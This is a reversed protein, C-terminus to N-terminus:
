QKTMTTGHFAIPHVVTCGATHRFCALPQGDNIYMQSTLNSYITFELTHRTVGKHHVGKVQIVNEIPSSFRVTLLPQNVTHGRERLKGVSAFVTIADDGLAVEHVQAAYQPVVGPRMQWYGDAFKM